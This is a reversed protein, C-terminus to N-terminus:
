GLIDKFECHDELKLRGIVPVLFACWWVEDDGAKVGGLMYKFFFFFM